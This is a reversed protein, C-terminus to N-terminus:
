LNMKKVGLFLGRYKNYEFPKGESFVTQQYVIDFGVEKIAQILQTKKLWFSKSNSYSAWKNMEVKDRTTNSDYEFFWRGLKGENECIPSLSFQCDRMDDEAYHTDIIITDTIAGMQKLFSVPNDLHYLIGCCLIAGYKKSSGINKVDDKVFILNSLQKFKSKVFLCKQYNSERAEVGIVDYGMQALAVSYGGELCGLDLISSKARVFRGISDYVARSLVSDKHEEKGADMTFTGDPFKINHATFQETM